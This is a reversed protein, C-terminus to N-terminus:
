VLNKGNNLTLLLILLVVTVLKNVFVLTNSSNPIVMLPHVSVLTKMFLTNLVMLLSIVMSKTVLGIVQVTSVLGTILLTSNLLHVELGVTFVL